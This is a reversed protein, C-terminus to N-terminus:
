RNTGRICEIVEMGYKNTKVKDKKMEYTYMKMGPPDFYLGACIEKLINKAKKWAADNFLPKGTKSDIMNGYLAFVARVRWYLISPPPVQRDVCGKFLEPRYFLESDIEEDTMGSEKMRERLENMLDKDWIFWANMYAVFFSKKVEHTVPIKPRDM